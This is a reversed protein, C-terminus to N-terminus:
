SPVVHAEREICSMGYKWLVQKQHNATHLLINAIDSASDKAWRPQGKTQAASGRSAGHAANKRRKAAERM